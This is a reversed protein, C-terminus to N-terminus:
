KEEVIEVIDIENVKIVKVKGNGLFEINIFNTAREVTRELLSNAQEYTELKESKMIKVIKNDKKVTIKVYFM